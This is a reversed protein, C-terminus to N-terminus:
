SIAHRGRDFQCHIGEKSCAILTLIEVLFGNLALFKVKRPEKGDKKPKPNAKNGQQPTPPAPTQQPSSPQTRGSAAAGNAPAQPPPMARQQPTGMQQVPPGQVPQQMMQQGNSGAPWGPVQGPQIPAQQQRAIAAIQQQSMQGNFAAPNSNPPRMGNPMMGAMNGDMGKMQNNYFQPAMNPDMQGHNFNMAAPSGRSQGDPLPSGDMGAALMKPTGRKMQDNPNPSPGQHSSPSLGQGAYQQGNPAGQSGDSRPLLGEQEQRAMMLRKKNQQELLMLQMQYDQLAHNSGNGNPQGPPGRIANPGVAAPNYFDAINTGMDPMQGIMPSGQNQPGGPGPIGKPPGQGDMASRQHSVLNQAYQSISKQQNMSNQNQFSQFQENSLTEPSIGHSLLLQTTTANTVNNPRNGVQQGPIGHQQGRGNPVMGPQGNFPAGELRPRKSPSPANEASGPSQPRGQRNMDMEISDRQMQQQKQLLQM